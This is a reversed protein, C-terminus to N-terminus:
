RHSPYPRLGTGSRLDYPQWANFKEEWYDYADVDASALIKRSKLINM